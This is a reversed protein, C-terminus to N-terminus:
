FFFFSWNIIFIKLTIVDHMYILDLITYKLNSNYRRTRVFNLPFWNYLLSEGRRNMKGRKTEVISEWEQGFSSLAKLSAKGPQSSWCMWIDTRQNKKIPTLVDSNLKNKGRRMCSCIYKLSKNGYHWLRSACFQSVHIYFM